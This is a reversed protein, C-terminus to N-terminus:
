WRQWPKPPPLVAPFDVSPTTANEAKRRRIAEADELDNAKTPREVETTKEAETPQPKNGGVGKGKLKRKPEADKGEVRVKREQPVTDKGPGEKAREKKTM